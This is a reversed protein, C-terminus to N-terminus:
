DLPVQSYLLEPYEKLYNLRNQLIKFDETEFAYKTDISKDFPNFELNFYSLFM